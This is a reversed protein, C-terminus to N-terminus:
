KTTSKPKKDRKTKFYILEIECKQLVDVCMKKRHPKNYNDKLTTDIGEQIKSKLETMVYLFEEKLGSPLKNYVDEFVTRM